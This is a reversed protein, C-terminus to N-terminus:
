YQSANANEGKTAHREDKTIDKHMRQCHSSAKTLYASAIQREIPCSLDLLESVPKYTPFFIDLVIVAGFIIGLGNSAIVPAVCNEIALGLSLLSMAVNTASVAAQSVAGLLSGEAGKIEFIACIINGVEIHFNENSDISAIGNTLGKVKFQTQSNAKLGKYINRDAYSSYQQSISGVDTEGLTNFSISQGYMKLLPAEEIDAASPVM